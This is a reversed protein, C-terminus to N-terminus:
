LGLMLKCIVLFRKRFVEGPYDRLGAKLYYFVEKNSAGAIALHLAAYTRASATAKSLDNGFATVNDQANMVYHIFSEVKIKIKEINESMVSREVHQIVSSTIIESTIFKDRAAIRIWLEWDELSSLSRDENFPNALAIDRRLFVSNCSLYNGHLIKKNINKVSKVKKIIVDDVTRIDYNFHFVPLESHNQILRFATSLHNSYAQDDSDFFNIYKGTAVRAGFNRAAGREGNKKKYYTIKKDTITSIIQETADTSGDDVVIIEFNDFDQALFTNITLSIFDMRNYTPIVISFFPDSM